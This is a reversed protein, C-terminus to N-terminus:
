RATSIADYREMLETAKEPTMGNLVAKDLIELAKEKTARAAFLDFVRDIDLKTEPTESDRWKQPAQIFASAGAATLDRVITSNVRKLPDPYEKACIDCLTQGPNFGHKWGLAGNVLSCHVSEGMPVPAASLVLRYPCDKYSM